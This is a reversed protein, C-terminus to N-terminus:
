EKINSATPKLQRKLYLSSSIPRLGCLVGKVGLFQFNRPVWILCPRCCGPPCSGVNLWMNLHSPLGCPAFFVYKREQLSLSTCSRTKGAMYLATKALWRESTLSAVGFSLGRPPSVKANVKQNDHEEPSLKAV